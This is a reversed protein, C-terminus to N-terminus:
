GVRWAREIRDMPLYGWGRGAPVLVWRGCLDVVGVAPGLNNTTVLTPDGRRAELPACEPVMHERALREVLRDLGGEKLLLRIAQKRCKYRPFLAAFNYATMTDLLYAAAQCCDHVGYGFHTHSRALKAARFLEPWNDLRRIIM